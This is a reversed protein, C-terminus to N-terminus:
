AVGSSSRAGDPRRSRRRVGVKRHDLWGLLAAIARPDHRLRHAGNAVIRVEASPGAAEALVRADDVPVVDDASGHVLLWPRPALHRSADVPDVWTVSINQAAYPANNWTITNEAWDDSVTLVDVASPKADGPQYGANGFLNLRVRASVIAKGKPVSALPFTVYYKSFCPFDAVDWQNQINFQEYGAAAAFGEVAARRPATTTFSCRASIACAPRAQEYVMEGVASTTSVAPPVIVTATLAGPPQVQVAAVLSLHIVTVLPAEPVPLPVTLSATAGFGPPPREPLAL